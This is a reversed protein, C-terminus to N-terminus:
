DLQSRDFQLKSMWKKEVVGDCDDNRFISGMKTCTDFPKGADFACLYLISIIFNNIILSVSFFFFFVIKHVIFIFTVIRQYM